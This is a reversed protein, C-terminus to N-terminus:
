LCVRTYSKYIYIVRQVARPKKNHSQQKNTLHTEELFSCFAGKQTKYANNKLWYPGFYRFITLFARKRHKKVRFSLAKTWPIHRKRTNKKNFFAHHLLYYISTISGFNIYLTLISQSHICFTYVLMNSTLKFTNSSITTYKSRMSKNYYLSEYIIYKYTYSLEVSIHLWLTPTLYASELM